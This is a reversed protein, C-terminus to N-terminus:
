LLVPHFITKFLSHVARILCINNLSQLAKEKEKIGPGQDCFRITNGGDLITITPEIFEAHIYNEVIERIITFPITGGQEHSLKTVTETLSSLFDRINSPELM